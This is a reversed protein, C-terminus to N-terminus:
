LCRREYIDIKKGNMNASNINLFDSSPNPYINFSKTQIIDSIGTKTWNPTLLYIKNFIGVLLYNENISMEFAASAHFNAAYVSTDNVFDWIQTRLSDSYGGAFLIYQNDPTFKMMGYSDGLKERTYTRYLTDADMDWIYSSGLHDPKTGTLYKGNNSYCLYGYISDAFEELVKQEQWGNVSFKALRGNNLTGNNSVFAASIVFYNGDPSFTIYQIERTPNWLSDLWKVLTDANLDYVFLKTQYKKFHYYDLFTSSANGIFYRGDPSLACTGHYDIESISDYQFTKIIRKSSDNWIVTYNEYLTSAIRNGNFSLRTHGVLSPAKEMSDIINGNQLDLIYITSDMAAYIKTTDKAFSAFYINYQNNYNKVWVTDFTVASAAQSMFLAIFLFLFLKRM